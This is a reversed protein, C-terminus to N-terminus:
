WMVGDNNYTLMKLTWSTLDPSNSWEGNYYSGANGDTGVGYLHGEPDFALSNVTWNSAQPQWTEHEWFGMNGDTGVGRLNGNHDYAIMRLAWGGLMGDDQWAGNTWTGSNGDM